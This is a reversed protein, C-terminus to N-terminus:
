PKEKRRIEMVRAVVRAPLDAYMRDDRVMANIQKWVYERAGPRMAFEAYADVLRELHGAYPDADLEPGALPTVDGTAQLARTVVEAGVPKGDRAADLVAKAEARTM